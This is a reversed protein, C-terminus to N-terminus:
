PTVGRAELCDRLNKMGRYVRNDASKEPCHLRRAIEPVTCGLLHLTVAVRRSAILGELCRRIERGLSRGIAQREPNPRDHHRLEVENDMAPRGKRRSRRRIEDVAAGHAAKLLYMSSFTAKGETRELKRLLQIMVEQAIDETQSALYPPCSRLVARRVRGMLLEIESDELPSSSGHPSESWAGSMTAM